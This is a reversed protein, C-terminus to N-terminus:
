VQGGAHGDRNNKSSGRRQNISSRSHNAGGDADGTGAQKQGINRQESANSAQRHLQSGTRGGPGHSGDRKGMYREDRGKSNSSGGHGVGGAGSGRTM